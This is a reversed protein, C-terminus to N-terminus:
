GVNITIDNRNYRFLESIKYVLEVIENSNLDTMIFYETDGIQVPSQGFFDKKNRSFCLRDNSRLKLCKYFEPGHLSNIIDCFTLLMEKWSKPSYTNGNFSFSKIQKNLLVTRKIDRATPKKGPHSNIPSDNGSSAGNDPLTESEVDLKPTDISDHPSHNQKEPEESAPYENEHTHEPEDTFEEDHNNEPEITSQPESDSKVTSGSPQHATKQEEINELIKVIEEEKIELGKEGVLMVLAQPLSPYPAKTVLLRAQALVDTVSQVASTLWLYDHADRHASRDSIRHRSLYTELAQELKDVTNELMNLEKFCQSTMSAADHIYYFKWQLGDTHVVILSKDVDAFQELGLEFEETRATLEHPAAVTIFVSSYSPETFLAFDVVPKDKASEVCYHVYVDNPNWIDWGLKDLIRAVLSMRLQETTKYTENLLKARIDEITERM